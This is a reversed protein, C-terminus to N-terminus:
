LPEPTSLSPRTPLNGDPRRVLTIVHGSRPGFTMEDAVLEHTTSSGFYRTPGHWRQGEILAVRYTGPPVAISAESNRHVFISIVHRDDSRRRLQVVANADGAQVGLTSTASSPDVDEAVAVSGNSPFAVEPERDPLLWGARKLQLGAPIAMAVFSLLLILGQAPHPKLVAGRFRGRQYDHGRNIEDFWGREVRAKKDNWRTPGAGSRARYRDRMYDRDDLGM